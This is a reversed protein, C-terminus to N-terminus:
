RSSAALGIEPVGPVPTGSSGALAKPQVGKAMAIRAATMAATTAAPTDSTAINM